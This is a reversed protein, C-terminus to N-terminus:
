PHYNLMTKHRRLNREQDYYESNRSFENMEKFNILFSDM